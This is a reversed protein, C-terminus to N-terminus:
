IKRELFWKDVEYFLHSIQGRIMCTYMIGVGGAKRSACREVKLVRDIEYRSGDEWTIEMPLLGGDRSFKAYVDVYVKCHNLIDRRQMM